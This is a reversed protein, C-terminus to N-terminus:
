LLRSLRELYKVALLNVHLHKTHKAAARRPTVSKKEARKKANANLKVRLDKVVVRANDRTPVLPKKVVVFIQVPKAPM